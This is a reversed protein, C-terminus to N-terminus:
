PSSPSHSYGAADHGAVFALYLVDLSGAVAAYELEADGGAGEEGPGGGDRGGEEEGQLDYTMSVLSSTCCGTHFRGKRPCNYIFLRSISMYM